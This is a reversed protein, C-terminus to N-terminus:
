LADHCPHYAGLMHSHVCLFNVHFRTWPMMAPPMHCAATHSPTTHMHVYLFNIPLMDLADNCPHYTGAHTLACLFILMRLQFCTWLM